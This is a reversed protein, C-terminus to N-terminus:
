LNKLRGPWVLLAIKKIKKGSIIFRDLFKEIKKKFNRPGFIFKQFISIALSCFSLKKEIKKKTARM